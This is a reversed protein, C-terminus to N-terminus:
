EKNRSATLKKERMKEWRRLAWHHENCLWRVDLAHETEYGNHHHGESELNGCVECPLRKIKGLRLAFNLKKRAKIKKKQLDTLNKYWPGNRSKRRQAAKGNLCERCWISGPAVPNEYCNPCRGQCDECLRHGKERPRIRCRYCLRQTLVPEKRQGSGNKMSAKICNYCYANGTAHPRAKCKSCLPNKLLSDQLVKKRCEKCSPYLGDLYRDSKVFQDLPLDRRCKSCTKM